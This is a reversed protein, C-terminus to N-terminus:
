SGRIAFGAKSEEYLELTDGDHIHYSGLTRGEKLRTSSEVHRLALLVNDMGQNLLATGLKAAARAIVNEVKLDTGVRTRFSSGSLKSMISINIITGAQNVM